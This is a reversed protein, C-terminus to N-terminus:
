DKLPKLSGGNSIDVHRVLNSNPVYRVNAGSSIKGDMKESVNVKLNAASSVDIIAKKSVLNETNVTAASSVDFNALDTKGNLEIEAASTADINLTKTFVDMKTNSGSTADINLTNTKFSGNLRAASYVEVNLVDANVTNTSIFGAASNLIINNLSPAIVNVVANKISISKGKPAQTYIRLIGNEVETKIYNEKGSDAQVQVKQSNGQTFNVKIGNSVSIGSFKGINRVEDSVTVSSNERNKSSNQAENALKNVDEMSIKGDLMLLVTNDEDNISLLLDDLIGGKADSVLFKIKSGKSNVTMLEEYNLKKLSNSIESQLNNFNLMMKNYEKSDKEPQEVVLIRLGEIKDLMPKINDLEADKIDLKSLMGFMPKSIKISTVGETDQFKDFLQYLQIKQASINLFSGFILALILIIKKM